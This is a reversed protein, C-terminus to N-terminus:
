PPLRSERPRPRLWSVIPRRLAPIVFLILGGFVLIPQVSSDLPSSVLPTPANILAHFGIMMWLNGSSLYMWAFISGALTLQAQDLLVSAFGSYSQNAIRNPVHPLAFALASILIAAAIWRTTHGPRKGRLWLFAQVALIGRFLTEEFLATGFLQSAFRGVGSYGFARWAPHLSLSSESALAAGVAALQLTAWVAITAIFGAKLGDRRWGIDSLRLRAPACILAFTLGLGVLGVMLNPFVLGHSLRYVPQFVSEMLWASLNLPAMVLSIALYGVLIVVPRSVASAGHLAPFRELVPDASPPLM